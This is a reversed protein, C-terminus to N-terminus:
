KMMEEIIKDKKKKFIIKDIIYLACCNKVYYQMAVLM